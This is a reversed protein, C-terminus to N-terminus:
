STIIVCNEDKREEQSLLDTMGATALIPPPPILLYRCAPVKCFVFVATNDLVTNSQHSSRSSRSSVSLFSPEGISFFVPLTRVPFLM